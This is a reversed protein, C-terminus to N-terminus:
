PTTKNENPIVPQAPDDPEKNVLQSTQDWFMEIGRSTTLIVGLAFSIWKIATPHLFDLSPIQGQIQMIIMIAVSWRLKTITIRTYNRKTFFETVSM